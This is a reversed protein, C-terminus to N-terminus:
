EIEIEGVAVDVYPNKNGEDGLATFKVARVKGVPKKFTFDFDRAEGNGDQEDSALVKGDADLLDVRGALFAYGKEWPPEQNGYVTVRTVVVDAPFEIQVWPKKKQTITDNAATFWSKKRNGDIVLEPPWGSWFTSATLKLKARHEKVLANSNAKPEAPKDDGKPDQGSAVSLCVCIVGVGLTRTLTQVM